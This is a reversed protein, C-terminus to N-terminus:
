AAVQDRGMLALLNWYLTEDWEGDVEETAEWEGCGLKELLGLRRRLAGPTSGTQLELLSRICRPAPPSGWVRGGSGGPGRPDRQPRLQGHEPLLAAKAALDSNV